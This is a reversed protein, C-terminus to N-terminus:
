LLRSCYQISCQCHRKTQKEKKAICSESFDKLQTKELHSMRWKFIGITFLFQVILALVTFILVRNILSKGM